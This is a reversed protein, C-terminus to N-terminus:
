VLSLRELRSAMASQQTPTSTQDARAAIRQRLRSVISESTAIKPHQAPLVARRMALCEELYELAKDLKGQSRYVLGINNLSSAISTHQAPLVARQM